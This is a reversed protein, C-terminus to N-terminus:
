CWLSMAARSSRCAASPRRTLTMSVIGKYNDGLGDPHGMENVHVLGLVGVKVGKIDFIATPPMPLDLSPEPEANACLYPFRSAKLCARFCDQGADMEHNGIASACFGIKNMLRVMPMGPEDDM